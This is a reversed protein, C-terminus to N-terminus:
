NRAILNGVFRHLKELADHDCAPHLTLEIKGEHVYGGAVKQEAWWKEHNADAEVKRHQMEKRDVEIAHKVLAEDAAIFPETSKLLPM